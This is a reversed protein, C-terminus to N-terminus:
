YHPPKTARGREADGSEIEAIEADLRKLDRQLKEILKWQDTIVENLEDIQRTQDAVTEELKLLRTEADAASM